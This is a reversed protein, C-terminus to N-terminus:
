ENLREDQRHAIEEPRLRGDVIWELLVRDRRAEAALVRQAAIGVALLAADGALQALRDTRGLRDGDLRTRAAVVARAAGRAVVDVHDFADVATQALLGARDIGDDLARVEFERSLRALLKVVVLLPQERVAVPPLARDGLVEREVRRVPLQRPLSRRMIM